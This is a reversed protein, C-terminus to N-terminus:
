LGSAQGAMVDVRGVSAADVADWGLTRSSRSVGRTPSSVAISICTIQAFKSDFYKQSRSQVALMLNIRSLLIAPARLAYSLIPKPRPPLRREAITRM